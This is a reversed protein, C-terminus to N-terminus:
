SLVTKQYSGGDMDRIEVSIHTEAPAREGVAAAAAALVAESLAKKAEPTRGPLLGIEIHLLSRGAAGDGIIPAGVDLVRTKCAAVSANVHEVTLRHIGLALSRTDLRAALDTSHEIRIQPM